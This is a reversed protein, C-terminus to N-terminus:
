QMSSCPPEAQPPLVHHGNAFVAVTVHDGCWGTDGDIGRRPHHILVMDAIQHQGFMDVALTTPGDAQDGIAVQRQPDNRAVWRILFVQLCDIHQGPRQDGGVLVLVQEIHDEIHAAGIDSANRYDIIEAQQDADGRRVVQHAQQRVVQM